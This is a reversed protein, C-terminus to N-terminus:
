ELIVIRGSDCDFDKKMRLLRFPMTKQIVGFAMYRFVVKMKGRFEDLQLMKLLKVGNFLVVDHKNPGSFSWYISNNILTSQYLTLSHLYM